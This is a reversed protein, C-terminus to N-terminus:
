LSFHSHSDLTRFSCMKRASWIIDIISGLSTIKAINLIKKEEDMFIGGAETRYLLDKLHAESCPSYSLGDLPFTGAIPIYSGTFGGSAINRYSAFNSMPDVREVVKQFHRTVKKSWMKKNRLLEGVKSHHLALYIVFISNYNNLIHLAQTTLLSRSRLLHVNPFPSHLSLLFSPVESVKLVHEFVAYKEKLTPPASIICM